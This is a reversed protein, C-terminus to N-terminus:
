MKKKYEKWAAAADRMSMNKDKMAKSMFKNYASPARKKRKGGIVLGGQMKGGLLKNVTDEVRKASLKKLGRGAAGELDELLGLGVMSKAKNLGRKGAKSNILELVDEKLGLGLLDKVDAAVKKGKKSKAIKKGEGLAEQLLNMRGGKYIMSDVASGGIMSDVASGGIIDAGSGLLGPAIKKLEGVIGDISGGSMLHAQVVTKLADKIKKNM